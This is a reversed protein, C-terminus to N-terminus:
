SRISTVKKSYLEKLEKYFATPFRLVGWVPVLLAIYAYTILESEIEELSLSGKDYMKRSLLLYTAVSM